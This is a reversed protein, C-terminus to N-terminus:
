CHARWATTWGAARAMRCCRTGRSTSSTRAIRTSCATPERPTSRIVFDGCCARRQPEAHVRRLVAAASRDTPQAHGAAFSVAVHGRVRQAPHLRVGPFAQLSNVVSDDLNVRNVPISLDANGVIGSSLAGSRCSTRRRRLKRPETRDHRRVRSRSDTELVPAECAVRQLQADESVHVVVPTQTNISQSGLLADVPDLARHRLDAREGSARTTSRM